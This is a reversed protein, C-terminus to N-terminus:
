AWDTLRINPLKYVILEGTRSNFLIKRGWLGQVDESVVKINFKKLFKKAVNINKKGIDKKVGTLELPADSGGVIHANLNNKKAGMKCLIRLLHPLSNEGYQSHYKQKDSKQSKQEKPLNFNTVGGIKAVSDFLCVAVGTGVVTAINLPKDRCAFICGNQLFYNQEEKTNEKIM